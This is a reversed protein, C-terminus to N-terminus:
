EQFISNKLKWKQDVKEWLHPSRWSDIVSWYEENTINLYKLTEKFYREPFEGDYKRVLLAGEDRSIKEDRIEHASDSTARGIGFKIYSLYYHLGDTKDDLGAYKCYTGETREPNAEFGTNEISYYYNEQPDWFHYYSMFHIETKNSMIQDFKPPKYTFIDNKSIGHSEWFEPPKGSFYHDDHDEINRKPKFANKMDGGYEVEGNEGYFILSVDHQVAMKLPFNTQGYIFPQFNDGMHIFSLQSMKRHVMGNVSGLINDFGGISIFNDLNKRGIKTYIHPSWTVTLPNMNYKYKLIHAVFSGDKGGSCPVIVDYSGNNKRHKNCLDSLESERIKWDINNKKYDSFNCASCVGEKDFTIRPRQNSMTCRKCFKVKTPLNYMSQVDRKEILIKDKNM